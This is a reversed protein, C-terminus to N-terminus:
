LSSIYAQSTFCLLYYQHFSYVKQQQQQQTNNIFHTIPIKIEDNTIFYYNFYFNSFDNGNYIKGTEIIRTKIGYNLIEKKKFNKSILLCISSSISIIYFKIKMKM